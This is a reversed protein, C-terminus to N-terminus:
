PRHLLPLTESVPPLSFSYPLDKYPINRTPFLPANTMYNASNEPTIVPAGNAGAISLNVPSTTVTKNKRDLYPKPIPYAPIPPYEKHINNRHKRMNGRTQFAM